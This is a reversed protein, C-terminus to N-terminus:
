IANLTISDHKSDGRVQERTHIHHFTHRATDTIKIIYGLEYLVTDMVTNATGNQIHYVTYTM